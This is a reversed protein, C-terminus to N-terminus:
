NTVVGLGIVTVTQVVIAGVIGGAVAGLEEESLEVDGSQAKQLDNVTFNFGRQNAFRVIEELDAGINKIQNQLEQDNKITENFRKIENNVM